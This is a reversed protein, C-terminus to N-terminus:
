RPLGRKRSTTILRVRVDRARTAPFRIVDVVRSLRGSVHAVPRWSRGDVSVAVTYSSPRLVTVPGPSPHVNPAPPAPWERGWRLVIRSVPQEGALPVTLAAPLGGPQWDTM